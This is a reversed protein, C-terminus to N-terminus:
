LSSSRIPPASAMPGIRTPMACGTWTRCRPDSTFSMTLMATIAATSACSCPRRERAQDAVPGVTHGGVGGSGGFALPMGGEFGQPEHRLARHVPVGPRGLEVLMGDPAAFAHDRLAPREARDGGRMGPAAGVVLEDDVLGAGRGVDPPAPHVLRELDLGILSELGGHQRVQGILLEEYAVEEGPRIRVMAEADAEHRRVGPVRQED